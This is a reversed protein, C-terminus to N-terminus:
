AKVPTLQKARRGKPRRRSRGGAPAPLIDDDGRRWAQSVAEIADVPPGEERIRQRETIDALWAVVTDQAKGDAPLDAVPSAVPVISPPEAARPHAALPHAAVPHAALAPAAPPASAVSAMAAVPTPHAVPAAAVPTVAPPAVPAMARPPAPGDVLAASLAAALDDDLPLHTSFPPTRPHTTPEVAVERTDSEGYVDGLAKWLDPMRDADVSPANTKLVSQPRQPPTTAPGGATAEARVM